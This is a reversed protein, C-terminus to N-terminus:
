DYDSNYEDEDIRKIISNLHKIFEMLSLIFGNKGVEEEFNFGSYSNIVPMLTMKLINLKQQNDIFKKLIDKVTMTKKIMKETKSLLMKTEQDEIEECLNKSISSVKLFQQEQEITFQHVGSKIFNMLEKVKILLHQVEKMADGMMLIKNQCESAHSLLNKFERIEKTSVVTIDPGDNLIKHDCIIVESSVHVVDLQSPNTEISINVDEKKVDTLIQHDVRTTTIIKETINKKPIHLGYGGDKSSNDYILPEIKKRQKKKNPTNMDEIITKEIEMSTASVNLDQKEENNKVRWNLDDSRSIKLTTKTSRKPICRIIWYPEEDPYNSKFHHYTSQILLTIQQSQHFKQM